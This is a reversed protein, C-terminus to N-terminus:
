APLNPPKKQIQDTYVEEAEAVEHPFVKPKDSKPKAESKSKPQPKPTSNKFSISQSFSIASGKMITSDPATAMRM